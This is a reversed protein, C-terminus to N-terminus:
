EDRVFAQALKGGIAAQLDDNDNIEDFAAVKSKGLNNKGYVYGKSKDYKIINHKVLEDIMAAAKGKDDLGKLKASFKDAESLENEKDGDDSDSNDGSEEVPQSDEDKVWRDFIEKARKQTTPSTSVGSKMKGAVYGGEVKELTICEGNKCEHVIPKSKSM